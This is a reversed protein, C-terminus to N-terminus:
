PTIEIALVSIDDELRADCCEEITELLSAVSEKLPGARSQDLAGILRRKGFEQDKTNLAETIGDSYLYLRDGPKMSVSHEQYRVGEFFGIPFGSVELIVPEATGSLYVPGPHGASVYRFEWTELNLMGYLLTFYQRTAPHMPFQKNLQEAVEAPPLLRYRSGESCQKLVSPPSPAPSLVRSLVVSLLAAVVGHGSVDLLYLGLEKEDLLFVNFIDGALEDCPKYAWAFSVGAVDPPAKPLLSEQIKAAMELDGKMRANVRHLKEEAQKRKSINRILALTCLRGSVDIASASIEAPLFQGTKTLCRLEDTWGQGNRSVSKAFALLKPMEDPHIASIPTSLLEERSYGLMTCAKSNVDLIENQVADIVLIADNSHDFIERFRKESKRLEEQVRECETELTELETVRRQLEASETTLQEKTKKENRM